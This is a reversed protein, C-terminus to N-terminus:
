KKGRLFPSAKISIAELLETVLELRTKLLNKYAETTIIEASNETFYEICRTKLEAANHMDALLLISAVSEINLNSGLSQECLSKLHDM